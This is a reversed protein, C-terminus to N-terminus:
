EEMRKFGEFENDDWMPILAMADDHSFGNDVLAKYKMHIHSAYRDYPREDIPKIKEAIERTTAIDQKVYDEIVVKNIKDCLERNEKVLSDVQKAYEFNDAFLKKIERDREDLQERLEENEKDRLKIDEKMKDNSELLDKISEAQTAKEVRLFKNEDSVVRWNTELTDNRIKIAKILDDREKIEKVLADNCYWHYPNEKDNSPELQKRLRENEKVLKDIEEDRLKIKDNLTELRDRQLDITGQLEEIRAEYDRIQEADYEAEPCEEVVGPYIDIWFLDQGDLAFYENPTFIQMCKMTIAKSWEPHEAILKDMCTM